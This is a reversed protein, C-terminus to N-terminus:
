SNMSSACKFALYLNRCNYNCWVPFVHIGFLSSVDHKWSHRRNSKWYLEQAEMTMTHVAYRNQLSKMHTIFYATIKKEQGTGPHCQNGPTNMYHRAFVKAASKNWPSSPTTILDVRFTCITCCEIVHDDRKAFAELENEKVICSPHFM